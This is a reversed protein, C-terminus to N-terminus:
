KKTKVGEPGPAKDMMKIWEKIIGQIAKKKANIDNIDSFRMVRVEKGDGELIGFKDPISAGKHFMLSVQKKSNMFFSAINGKYIFTPSSWKIDEDIQDSTQLIIERVLQIQGTLPHKKDKLFKDVKQNM